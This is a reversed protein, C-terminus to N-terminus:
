KDIIKIVEAVRKGLNAAGKIGVADQTLPKWRSNEMTQITGIGSFPASQQQPLEEASKNRLALNRRRLPGTRDMFDKVM